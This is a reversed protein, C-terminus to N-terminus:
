RGVPRTEPIPCNWRLEFGSGGAHAVTEVFTVCNHPIVGWQWTESLLEMLKEQAQQPRTINLRVRRVVSKRSERLYRGFGTGDMVHPQRNWGAIHFYWGACSNTNLLAHGCFNPGDGTVIVAHADHFRYATPPCRNLPEGVYPNM